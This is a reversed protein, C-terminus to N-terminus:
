VVELLEVEPEIQEVIGSLTVTVKTFKCHYTRGNHQASALWGLDWEVGYRTSPTELPKLELTQVPFLQNAEGAAAAYLAEPTDAEQIDVTGEERGWPTRAIAESDAIEVVPREEGQGAGLAYIVTKRNSYDETYVLNALNGRSVGFITPRTSTSRRDEGWPSLIQFLFEQTAGGYDVPIIGFDTGGDTRNRNLRENLARLVDLVYPERGGGTGTLDAPEWGDATKRWIAGEGTGDEYFYQNHGGGLYFNYMRQNTTMPIYGFGAYLDGDFALLSHCMLYAQGLGDFEEEWTTGDISSWIKAPFSKNGWTGLYLRGNHAALATVGRAAQASDLLYSFVRTWTTGGDSRWVEGEYGIPNFRSGIAAYLYAGFECFACVGDMPMRINLTTPPVDGGGIDYQQVEGTFEKVVAWTGADGSQSRLIRAIHNDSGGADGYYSAGAYIYGNWSYLAEIGRYKESQSSGGGINGDLVQSWTTGDPTRHIYGMGCYANVGTWRVWYGTGSSAYLKGGHVCLALMAYAGSAEGAPTYVSTWGTPNGVDSRYVRAYSLTTNGRGIYLRTGGGGDFPAICWPVYTLYASYWNNGTVSQWLDVGNNNYCCAYLRHAWPEALATVAWIDPNTGAINASPFVIGPGGAPPAATDNDQCYLGKVARWPEEPGVCQYRVIDRMINAIAGSVQFKYASPQEGQNIAMRGQPPRIVRTKLLRNVHEFKWTKRLTAVRTTEERPTRQFGLWDTYWDRVVVGATVVRRQVELLINLDLADLLTDTAATVGYNAVLVGQGVDSLIKEYQFSEYASLIGIQNGDEGKIVLRYEGPM